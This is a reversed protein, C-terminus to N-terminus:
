FGLGSSADVLVFYHWAMLPVCMAFINIYVCGQFHWSFRIVLRRMFITCRTTAGCYSKSAIIHISYYPHLINWVFYQSLLWERYRHLLQEFNKSFFQLQQYTIKGTKGGFKFFFAVEWKASGLIRINGSHEKSQTGELM